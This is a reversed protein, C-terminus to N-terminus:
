CCCCVCRAWSNAETTALIGGKEVLTGKATKGTQKCRLVFVASCREPDLKEMYSGDCAFTLNGDRLSKGIWEGDDDYTLTDWLTQNEMEALTEQFTEPKTEPADLKGTHAPNLTVEDTGPGEEVSVFTDGTYQSIEEGVKWYRKSRTSASRPDAVSLMCKLCGGSSQNEYLIAGHSSMYWGKHRPPKQAFPGMTRQLVPKSASGRAAVLRITKEWLQLHKRPPKEKLYYYWDSRGESHQLVEQDVTAGDCLTIVSLFYIKKFKWYRGVIELDNSRLCKADKNRAILETMFPVDGKRVPCLCRALKGQVRVNLFICLEWLHRYWVKM